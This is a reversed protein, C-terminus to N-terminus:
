EKPVLIEDDERLDGEKLEASLGDVLGLTVAIKVNKNNRYVLLTGNRVAKLPVLKGQIKGIEVSVDATMGPLISPDLKDVKISAIFEDDKPFLASVKGELTENRISEFSVKARQGVKVRLASEQELSLELYRDKLDEVRLIGVNPLVTEGEYLSIMTVTGDFPARFVVSSDLELLKQGAKVFDGEKVFRQRLTSIVGVKVEYRQNSKVKALGYVAETIEGVSAKVKNYKRNQFVSQVLFLVIIVAILPVILWFSKKRFLM